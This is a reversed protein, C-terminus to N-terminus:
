KFYVRSYIVKEILDKSVSPIGLVPSLLNLYKLIVSLTGEYSELLM